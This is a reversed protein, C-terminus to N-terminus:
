KKMGSGFAESIHAAIDKPTKHIAKSPPVYAGGTDEHFNTSVFGGSAPEIEIRRVKKGKSSLVSKAASQVSEHIARNDCM